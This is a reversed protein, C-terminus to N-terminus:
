GGGFISKDVRRFGSDLLMWYMVCTSATLLLFCVQLANAKIHAWVLKVAEPRALETAGGAFRSMEESVPVPKMIGRKEKAATADAKTVKPAAAKKAGAAAAGAAPSMLFRSGRFVRAVAAMATPIKERRAREGRPNPHSPHVSSAALTKPPKLTVSSERANQIQPQTPHTHLTFVQREQM